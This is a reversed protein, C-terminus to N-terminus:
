STWVRLDQAAQGAINHQRARAYVERLATRLWWARTGKLALRQRWHTATTQAVTWGNPNQAHGLAPQAPGQLQIQRGASPAGQFGAVGAVSELSDGIM